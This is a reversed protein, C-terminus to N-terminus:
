LKMRKFFHEPINKIIIMILRWISKVYIVNQKKRVANFIANAVENPQATLKSPLKLHNTMKTAVFGPLVTIVHVNKNMLRNRLGSLFTTFGAKASGYIYNSGRGREGAVSSIGILTGSGREEFNNALMGIISAPGEFNSRIIKITSQLDKESKQQEGMYGVASVAIDPLQPLSDIFQKFSSIELVDINHLTVQTQYKSEIDLKNKNLTSSNRAALQINYDEKAFYNAIATAIDSRAGIILINKKKM